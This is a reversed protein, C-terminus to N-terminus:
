KSWINRADMRNKCGIIPFVNSGTLNNFNQVVQHGEIHGLNMFIGRKLENLENLQETYGSKLSNLSEPSLEFNSGIM